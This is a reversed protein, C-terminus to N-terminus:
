RRAQVWASMVMLEVEVGPAGYRVPWLVQARDGQVADQNVHEGLRGATGAMGVDHALEDVFGGPQM